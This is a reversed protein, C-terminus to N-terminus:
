AQVRWGELALCVWVFDATGIGFEGLLKLTSRFGRFLYDLFNKERYTQKIKFNNGYQFLDSRIM